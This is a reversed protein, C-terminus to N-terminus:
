NWVNKQELSNESLQSEVNIYNLNYYLDVFSIMFSNEDNFSYRVIDPIFESIYKGPNIWTMEDSTDNINSAFGLEGKKALYKLVKFSTGKHAGFESMDNFRLRAKLYYIKNDNDGSVQKVMRFNNIVFDIRIPMLLDSGPKILLSIYTFDTPHRESGLKNLSDVMTLEMYPIFKDNFVKLKIIDSAEIIMGGGDDSDMNPLFLFPSTGIQYSWDEASYNDVTNLYKIKINKLRRKSRFHIKFAM